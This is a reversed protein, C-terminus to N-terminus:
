GVLLEAWRGSGLLRSVAGRGFLTGALLVGMGNRVAGGFYEHLAFSRQQLTFLIYAVTLKWVSLGVELYPTAGQPVVGNARLLEMGTLLLFTIPLAVGALVWERRRTASGLAFSNLAFWPLSLWAGALMVALLPWMPNVVLHSLGSPSPEDQIRYTADM